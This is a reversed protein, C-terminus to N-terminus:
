SLPSHLINNPTQKSYHNIFTVHFIALVKTGKQLFRKICLGEHHKDTNTFNHYTRQRKNHNHIHKSSSSTDAKAQQSTDFSFFQCILAFDINRETHFSPRCLALSSIEIFICIVLPPYITTRGNINWLSSLAM